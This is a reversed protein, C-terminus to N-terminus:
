PRVFTPLMFVCACSMFDDNNSSKTWALECVPFHYIKRVNCIELHKRTSKWLQWLNHNASKSLHNQLLDLELNFFLCISFNFSHSARSIKSHTHAHAFEHVLCRLVRVIKNDSAFSLSRKGTTDAFKVSDMAVNDCRNNKNAECARDTARKPVRVCTWRM